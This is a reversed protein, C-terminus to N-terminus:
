AMLSATSTHPDRHELDGLAPPTGPPKSTIPGTSTTTTGPGPEYDHLTTKNNSLITLEAVGAVAVAAIAGGAAAGKLFNRRSTKNSKIIEDEGDLSM